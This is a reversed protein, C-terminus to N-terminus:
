RGRALEQELRDFSMPLDGEHQVKQRIAPMANTGLRRLGALAFESVRPQRLGDLLTPVVLEIENTFAGLCRYVHERLMQNTENTRSMVALAVAGEFATGPAIAALTGVANHRTGFFVDNTATKILLPIAAVANTGTQALAASARARRQTFDRPQPAVKQIQLPLSAFTKAYLQQFSTPERELVRTLYPVAKSGLVKVADRLEVMPNSPSPAGSPLLPPNSNDLLAGLSVGNFRPEPVRGFWVVVVVITTVLGLLTVIRRSLKVSASIAAFQFGFLPKEGALAFTASEIEAWVSKIM